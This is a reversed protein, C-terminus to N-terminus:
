LVTQCKDFIEVSCVGCAIFIAGVLVVFMKRCRQSTTCSGQVRAHAHIKTAITSGKVTIFKTSTSSKTTNIDDAEGNRIGSRSNSCNNPLPSVTINEHSSIPPDPTAENASHEEEEVIANSDHLELAIPHRSVGHFDPSKIKQIPKTSHLRRVIRELNGAFAM